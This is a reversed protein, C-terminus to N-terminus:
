LTNTSSFFQFYCTDAHVPVFGDDYYASTVAVNTTLFRECDWLFRHTKYM